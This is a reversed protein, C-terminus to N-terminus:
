IDRRYWILSEHRGIEKFMDKGLSEVLAIFDTSEEKISFLYTTIKSLKLIGEYSELLRRGIFIPRPISIFMPGAVIFKQKPITSVLGIIDGDRTASITPYSLKCEEIDHERLFRHCAAYEAGSNVLEYNTGHHLTM